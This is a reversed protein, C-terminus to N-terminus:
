PQHWRSQRYELGASTAYREAASRRVEFLTSIEDTTPPYVDALAMLVERKQDVPSRLHCRALDDLVSEGCGAQRMRGVLAQFGAPEDDFDTLNRPPVTWPREISVAGAEIQDKFYHAFVDHSLLAFPREPALLPPVAEEWAQVFAAAATTQNLQSVVPDLEREVHDRVNALYGQNTELELADLTKEGRPDGNRPTPYWRGDGDLVFQIFEAPDDVRPDVLAPQEEGPPMQEITLRRSGQLLPFQTGKNINCSSCAYLLNVPSWTLWWYGTIADEPESSVPQGDGTAQLKPRFHDVTADGTPRQDCWACKYHQAFQLRHRFVDYGTLHHEKLTGAGFRQRAGDLKRVRAQRLKWPEAPQWVRIM